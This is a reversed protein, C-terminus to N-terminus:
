RGRVEAAVRAEEAAIRAAVRNEEEQARESKMVGWNVEAEATRRSAEERERRENEAARRRAERCLSFPLSLFPSLSALSVLNSM